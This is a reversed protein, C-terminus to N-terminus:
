NNYAKLAKTIFYQYDKAYNFTVSAAAGIYIANLGVIHPHEEKIIRKLIKM